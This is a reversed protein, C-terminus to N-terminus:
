SRQSCRSLCVSPGIRDDGYEIAAFRTLRFARWLGIGHALLDNIKLGMAASVSTVSRSDSANLPRQIKMVEDSVHILHAIDVARDQELLAHRDHEAGGRRKEVCLEALVAEAVPLSPHGGLLQRLRGAREGEFFDTRRLLSRPDPLDTPFIATIM